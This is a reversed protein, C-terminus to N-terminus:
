FTVSVIEASGDSDVSKVRRGSLCSKRPREADKRRSIRGAWSCIWRWSKTAPGLSTAGTEGTAGADRLIKVMAANELEVAVEIPYVPSM